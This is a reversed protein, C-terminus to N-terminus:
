PVGMAQVHDNHVCDHSIQAAAVTHSDLGLYKACLGFMLYVKVLLKRCWPVGHVALRNTRKGGCWRAGHRWRARVSGGRNCAGGRRRGGQKGCRRQRGGDSQRGRGCRRQRGGDSRGGGSSGGHVRHHPLRGGGGGGGSGSGGSWGTRFARRWGIM